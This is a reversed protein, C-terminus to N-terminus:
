DCGRKPPATMERIMLPSELLTYGESPIPDAAVRQSGAIVAMRGMRYKPESNM